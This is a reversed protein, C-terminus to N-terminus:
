TNLELILPCHDSFQWPDPDGSDRPSCSQVADVLSRSVFIYDNQWPTSTNAQRHTCVHLCPTDACPCDQLPPRPPRNLALCDVLGLSAYRDLLNRDRRRASQNTWQTTINLDGGIVVHRGLPSEFLPTLDSLQRGVTTHAYQNDLLGYQSILTLEGVQAIALSGPFTQHLQAMNNPRASDRFSVVVSGWPRSTDIGGPRFVVHGTTSATEPNAEQLLAIDPELHETLFRWAARRRNM